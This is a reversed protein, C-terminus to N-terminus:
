GGPFTVQVMPSAMGPHQQRWVRAQYTARMRYLDRLPVKAIQRGAITYGEHASGTGSLRATIEAEIAALHTEDFTQYRVAAQLDTEVVVVGSAAVYRASALTAYIAWTYTGPALPATDAAPLTFLYDATRATATADLKSAGRLAIAVTWGESPPFDDFAQTWQVTDGAQVTAPMGTPITPAM